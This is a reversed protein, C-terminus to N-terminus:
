SRALIKEACEDAIDPNASQSGPMTAWGQEEVHDARAWSSAAQLEQLAETPNTEQEFQAVCIPVLSEVVAEQAAREAEQQAAGATVVWDASFEVILLVIAGVAMGFIFLPISQKTM